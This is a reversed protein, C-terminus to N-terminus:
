DVVEIYEGNIDSLGNILIGNSKIMDLYEIIEETIVEGPVIVPVGPPYPVAFEASVLNVAAKLKVIRHPRYYAENIGAAKIYAPMKLIINKNIVKRYKKSIDALSDYLKKFAEIEDGVSCILLINNLDSMEVQIKYEKRLIKELALGGIPSKVLIKTIDVDNIDATGIHERGLLKYTNLQSIKNRFLDINYLLEDLLKEGRDEMIYRAADISAMLIYSPSTSQFARLMFKIGDSNLGRRINLLSTQTMAPTTKHLSTVSVDAGLNLSPAPLNKNFPLHAGHAEDVIVYMDRKHAEGIITKIDSCTGYYTPYTFVVAKADPNENMCRIVDNNNLSVAINFEDLITPNVYTVDLNGLLAATYVSRHCNRQIIIKDKPKTLGMVAAYIGSTSGNVLFYSEGANFARAAYKEGQLIMGEPIHLNDLGPIETNDFKYLFDKITNLEKFNRKNNKHGPMHFPTVNENAYKLLGEVVPMKSM